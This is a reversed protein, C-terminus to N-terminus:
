NLAKKQKILSIIDREVIEFIVIDPKVKEILKKNLEYKKLYFSEGFSENLFQTLANAFSDRHLIIVKEKEPNIYHRYVNKDPIVSKAKTKNIKNLVIKSDNFNYNIMKTLDFQNRVEIEISYDSLPVIPIENKKNLESILEHYGYYAGLDNWHSDSKIYLFENNDKQKKLAESLDLFNLNPINEINKKLVQLNTKQQAFKFPLYEKYINNKNPAIVIYFEINKSTLYANVKNLKKIIDETKYDIIQANGYADNFTENYYNGMFFWNNKGNVVREPLPTEKLVNSKLGLYSNALPTKLGYNKSYYNKFQKNNFKPANGKYINFVLIVNPTLLMLIFLISIIYKNNHGVNNTM